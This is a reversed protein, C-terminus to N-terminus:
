TKLYPEWQLLKKQVYMNFNTSANYACLIQLFFFFFAFLSGKQASEFVVCSEAQM